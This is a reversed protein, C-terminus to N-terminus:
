GSAAGSGIRAPVGVATAGEPVDALVVANAGIRARAGVTVNGLVRSGTGLSVGPGITPGPGDGAGGITVAPSIVAGPYIEVPGEVVVQGHVVYIGPHVVAQDGIYIGALAIALRHLVRPLVPVRRRQLSAKARYLAQGLFADSVFALRVIQLAADVTSDFEHREGRRLATYRADALVATRLRPHRSTTESSAASTM